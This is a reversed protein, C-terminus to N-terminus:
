VPKGLGMSLLFWDTTATNTETTHICYLVILLISRHKQEAVTIFRRVVCDCGCDPLGSFPTTAVECRDGVEATIQLDLSRSWRLISLRGRMEHGLPRRAPRLFGSVKCQYIMRLLGRKMLLDFRPAAKLFLEDSCVQDHGELADSSFHPILPGSTSCIRRDVNSSRGLFHWGLSLPRPSALNQPSSVLVGLPWIVDLSLRLIPVVTSDSPNVSHDKSTFLIRDLTTSTLSTFLYSSM